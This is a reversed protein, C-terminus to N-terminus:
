PAARRRRSLLGASLIVLLTGAAPEPVTDYGILEMARLDSAMVPEFTGTGLTPDMLGILPGFEITPPNFIFDDKWHSAQNGDGRNAGTSMRYETVLDSTVAEVGPRLERPFARFEDFTTPRKDLAFRFLDLTTANDSITPVADFSDADSIFGLVHGIEHAAATQFDLKGPTVGDRRDYDFNSAFLSNFTVDGDSATDTRAGPVLGLAKQNARTVGITTKVFTGGAPVNASVTATTPLYGLVAGGPRGARAAMANRVTTYDLNLDASGFGTNAITNPGLPAVDVNINVRIPSTIAAQWELAARQFSELADLNDRLNMGPDLHIEFAGAARVLALALAAALAWRGRMTKAM